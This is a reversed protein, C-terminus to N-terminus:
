LGMEELSRASLAQEALLSLRSLSRIEEVKAVTGASLEGFRRSLLQKLLLLAGEAKGEHRGAEHGQRWGEERMEDAGTRGAEHGQRWGEQRMEDAWTMEVKQVTQDEQRLKLAEFATQQEEDL